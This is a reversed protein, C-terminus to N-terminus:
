SRWAGPRPSSRWRPGASTPRPWRPRTSRWTRGSRDDARVRRRGAALARREVPLVRRRGGPRRRSRRRLGARTLARPLDVLRVWLATRPALDAGRPNALMLTLPEDVPASPWVLTATLDQDLLFSWLRARAEPTEAVLERVRVEGQPGRPDDRSAISYLAYGGDALVARRATAGARENELDLLRDDWWPGSRDLMGPRRAREAEHLPRMVDLAEAPPAIRLPPGHDPGSGALLGRDARRARLVAEYTAPGYGFRGYIGGESAKLVAVAEGGERLDDLQRRMLGTLLGRRRHSPVVTVATVAACPLTGGPVSMDRSYASATAVIRGDDEWVLARAPEDVLRAHEREADTAEYHFALMAADTFGGDMEEPTVGRLRMCTTYRVRVGATKARGAGPVRAGHLALLPGAQLRAELAPVHRHDRQAPHDAGPRNTPLPATIFESRGPPTREGVEGGAREDHQDHPHEALHRDGVRRDAREHLVAACASPGHAPKETPQSYQYKQAITSAISATAPAVIM